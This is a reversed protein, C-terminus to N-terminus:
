IIGEDETKPFKTDKIGKPGIESTVAFFSAAIKNSCQVM